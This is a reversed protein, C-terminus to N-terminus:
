SRISLWLAAFFCMLCGLLMPMLAIQILADTGSVSGTATQVRGRLFQMFSRHTVEGCFETSSQGLEVMPGFYMLSLVYIVKILLSTYGFAWGVWSAALFLGFGGLALAIAFAHVYEDAVLPLTPTASRPLVASQVTPLSDQDAVRRLLMTESM